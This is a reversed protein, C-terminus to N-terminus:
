YLASSHLSEAGIISRGQWVCLCLCVHLWELRLAVRKCMLSFHFVADLFRPVRLKPPVANSVFMVLERPFKVSIRSPLSYLCPSSPPPPCAKFVSCSSAPIFLCPCWSTLTHVLCHSMFRLTKNARLTQEQSRSTLALKFSHLLVSRADSASLGGGMLPPGDAIGGARHYVRGDAALSESLISLSFACTQSSNKFVLDTKLWVWHRVKKPNWCLLM